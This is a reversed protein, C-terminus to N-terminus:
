PATIRPHRTKYRLPTFGSWSSLRVPSYIFTTSLVPTGRTSTPPLTSISISSLTCIQIGQLSGQPSDWSWTLALEVSPRFAGCPRCAFEPWCSITLVPLNGGYLQREAWM